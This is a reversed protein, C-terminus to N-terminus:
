WVPRAEGCALLGHVRYREAWNGLHRAMISRNRLQRTVETIRNINNNVAM